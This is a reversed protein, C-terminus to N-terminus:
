TRIISRCDRDEHSDKRKVIECVIGTLRKIHGAIALAQRHTLWTAQGEPVGRWPAGRSFYTGDIFKILWIM